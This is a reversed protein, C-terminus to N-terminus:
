IETQFYYAVLSKYCFFAVINALTQKSKEEIPTDGISM